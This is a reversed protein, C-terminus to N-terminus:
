KFLLSKEFFIKLNKSTIKRFSKEIIIKINNNTCIHKKIIYKIKSFVMEIPNFQPSYPVNYIIRVNKINDIYERLIISHHIRANDLLLYYINNRDLKEIISKIFELFIIANASGNIMKNCIINKNNIASVVTFRKKLHSKIVTLKNGKQSWGYEINIHTDISTEDISIIKSIDIKRILKKFNKVKKNYEKKKTYIFKKRIKKRTINMYKLCEYISSKSISVNYKKKIIRTLRKYDFNIRKIVYERIYCKMNPTIKLERIKREELTNNEYKRIWNYLTGNSIGFINLLESITYNSSNYCKIVQLKFIYNYKYEKKM